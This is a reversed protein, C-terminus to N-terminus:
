VIDILGEVRDIGLGPKDTVSLTSKDLVIGGITPDKALLFPGDLDYMTINKKACALHVAASISINSEIMCGIMCEVGCSEAMANIKLANHIGGCKMLKINILDAARKSLVNFADTYSFVSEDALINTTVNDTVYKLGGIDWAKVPQEVLEIDLGMDEMMRISRIANKATWGQNADLRINIDKGVASRIGKIREIDKRIDDKGVKIKLTNFGQAVANLSDRQMEEIENISITIDSNISKRYGGLLQYLPANHYRAFLDYIAMDIAAKASTNGVSSSNIKEMIGEINSIDMGIISKAITGNIVGVVSENTDGTIVVTPPAEGYGIDGTDTVVEVVIDEAITCTRLATKFPKKLPIELKKLRVDLVKM